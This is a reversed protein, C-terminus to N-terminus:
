WHYYCDYTKLYHIDEFIESYDFKTADDDFIDMVRPKPNEMSEQRKIM